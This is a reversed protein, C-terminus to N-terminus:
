AGRLRPRTEAMRHRDRTPGAAGAATLAKRQRKTRCRSPTPASGGLRGAAGHLWAV